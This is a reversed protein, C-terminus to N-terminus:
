RAAAADNETEALDLADGAALLLTAPVQQFAQAVPLVVHEAEDQVQPDRGGGVLRFTVHARCLGLLLYGATQAGLLGGPVPVRDAAIDGRCGLVSDADQRCQAVCEVAVQPHWGDWIRGSGALGVGAPKPRSLRGDQALCAASGAPPPWRAPLPPFTALEQSM